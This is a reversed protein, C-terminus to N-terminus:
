KRAYKKAKNLNTKHQSMISNYLTQADTTTNIKTSTSRKNGASLAKTSVKPTSTTSSGTSSTKRTSTKTSGGTSTSKSVKSSGSTNTKFNTTDAAKVNKGQLLKYILNYQDNEFAAYAREFENADAKVVTKTLGIDSLKITGKEIAKVVDQYIGHNELYDRVQIAASNSYSKGDKDKIGEINKVQYFQYYDLGIKKMKEAAKDSSYLMDSADPTVKSFYKYKTMNYVHKQIKDIIDVKAKTGDTGEYLNYTSDDMFKQVEEKYTKLYYQNLETREEPTFKYKTGDSDKLYSFQTPIIYENGTQQSLSLLENDYDTATNFKLNGPSFAYYLADLAKNGFIRNSKENGSYDLAPELLQSAFPIKQLNQRTVSGLWNDSYTTRTTDDIIKNFKAGATPFYQGIYNRVVGKVIGPTGDYDYNELIDQVSSLVTMDLVPNFMTSFTEIAYDLIDINDDEGVTSVFDKLNDYATAGLLLIAGSPSAWDITYTAGGPLNLVYNSEGLSEKFKQVRSSDDDKDGKIIDLNALFTGMLMLVTGTAGRALRNIANQPTMTGAEVAYLSGYLGQILGVPSYEVVRKTINFPTTTFPVIANILFDGVKSQASYNRLFEALKNTDRYVSELAEEYAYQQMRMIDRSEMDVAKGNKMLKGDELTYGNAKLQTAFEVSFRGSAFWKDEGNLFVDNVNAVKDFFKGLTKNFIQSRTQEFINRNQTINNPRWKGQDQNTGEAFNQKYIDASYKILKADEANFRNVFVAKGEANTRAFQSDDVYHKKSDEFGKNMLDKITADNVVNGASDVLAGKENVTFGGDKIMNALSYSWRQQQVGSVAYNKGKTLYDLTKGTYGKSEWFKRRDAKTKDNLGEKMYEQYETELMKFPVDKAYNAIDVDGTVDMDLHSSFRRGQFMLKEILYRNINKGSVLGQQLANGFINRMHTAPNALMMLYRWQNMYESMTPPIADAIRAEIDAIVKARAEDTDANLYAQKEADTLNEIPALKRGKETRHMEANQKNIWQEIKVLRYEPSIDNMLRCAQLAYGANSRYTIYAEIVEWNEEDMKQIQKYIDSSTDVEVGNQMLKSNKKDFSLNNDKFFQERAKHSEESYKRCYDIMTGSVGKNDMLNKDLILKRLGDRGVDDYVAQASKLASERSITRYNGKAEDAKLDSAMEDNGISKLEKIVTNKGKSQKLAGTEAEQLPITTEIQHALEVQNIIDDTLNTLERSGTDNLQTSLTDNLDTKAKTVQEPNESIIADPVVTKVAEDEAKIVQETQTQTDQTPNLVDKVTLDIVADEDEDITQPEPATTQDQPETIVPEEVQPEPAVTDEAVPEVPQTMDIVPEETQTADVTPEEVANQVPEVPKTVTDDAMQKVAKDTKNITRNAIYSPAGMAMSSAAGLLASYGVDGAYGLPNGITQNYISQAYDSGNQVDPNALPNILPELISSVAEEGAEGLAQALIHDPNMFAFTKLGFKNGFIDSMKETGVELGASLAGYGLARLADARSLEGDASLNNFAESGSNGFVGLGMLGLGVSEGLEGGGTLINAAITPIMGGISEAVQGVMNNSVMNNERVNKIATEIGLEQDFKRGAEVMEKNGILGGIGQVVNSAARFQGGIGSTLGGLASLGTDSIAKTVVNSDIQKRAEDIKQQANGSANRYRQRERETIDKNAETYKQMESQVTKDTFVAGPLAKLGASAQSFSPNQEKQKKEYYERVHPAVKSKTQETKQPQEEVKQTTKTQKPQQATQKSSDTTKKTNTYIKKMLDYKAM